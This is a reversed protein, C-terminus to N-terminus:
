IDEAYVSGFAYYASIAAAGAECLKKIVVKDESSVPKDDPPFARIEVMKGLVEETGGVPKPMGDKDKSIFKYKTATGDDFSFGIDCVPNEERMLTVKFGWIVKDDGIDKYVREVKGPLGWNRKGEEAENEAWQSLQDMFDDRQIQVPVEASSLLKGVQLDGPLPEDDVQEASVRLLDGRSPIYRATDGNRSFALFQPNTFCLNGPLASFTLQAMSTAWLATAPPSYSRPLASLRSPSSVRSTATALQSYKGLAADDLDKHVANLPSAKLGRDFLKGLMNDSLKEVLSDITDQAECRAQTAVALLVILTIGRM